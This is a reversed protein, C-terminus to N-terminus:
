YSSHRMKELNVITKFRKELFYKDVVKSLRLISLPHM